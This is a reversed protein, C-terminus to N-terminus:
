LMSYSFATPLSFEVDQVNDDGSAVPRNHRSRTLESFQSMLNASFLVNDDGSAVPRNHWSRRRTLESFQSMLNAYHLEDAIVVPWCIGMSHQVDLLSLNPSLDRSFIYCERSVALRTTQRCTWPDADGCGLKARWKRSQIEWRHETGDAKPKVQCICFAGFCGNCICLFLTTCNYNYVYIYIYEGGRM